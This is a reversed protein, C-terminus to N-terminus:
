RARTWNGRSICRGERVITSRCKLAAHHYVGDQVLSAAFQEIFGRGEKQLTCRLPGAVRVCNAM